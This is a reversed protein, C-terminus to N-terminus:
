GAPRDSHVGKWRWMTKKAKSRYDKKRKGRALNSELLNTNDSDVCYVDPVWKGHILYWACLPASMAINGINVRVTYPNTSSQHVANAPVALEPTGPCVKRIRLITGNVPDYRLFKRLEDIPVTEEVVKPDSRISFIVPKELKFVVATKAISMANGVHAPDLAIEAAKRKKLEEVTIM